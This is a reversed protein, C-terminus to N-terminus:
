RPDGLLFELVKWARSETEVGTHGVMIWRIPAVFAFYCPYVWLANIRQIANTKVSKYRRVTYKSEVFGDYGGFLHDLVQEASPSKIGRNLKIEELIKHKYPKLSERQLMSM